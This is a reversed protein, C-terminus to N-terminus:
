RKTYTILKWKRKIAVKEFAPFWQAAHSDGYLGIVVSSTEDGFVCKKPRLASFGAHCNNKYVIPM